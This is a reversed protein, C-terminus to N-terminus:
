GDDLLSKAGRKFAHNQACHRYKVGVQSLGWGRILGEKILRRMVQAVSELAIAENIRHWYYLDVYDTKLRKISQELHSKITEYLPKKGEDDSLHFKTAIIADKRISQLAEGVLEENHGAYFM